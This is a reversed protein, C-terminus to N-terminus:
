VHKRQTQNARRIEARAGKWAKRKGTDFLRWMAATLCGDMIMKHLDRHQWWFKWAKWSTWGLNEEIGTGALKDMWSIWEGMSVAATMVAGREARKSMDREHNETWAEMEATPPLQSKGAWVQAIAMSAMDALCFAGTVFWVCGLFALSDPKKISFVNQYLRPLARGKSGRAELWQRSPNASPDYKPDILNFDNKHYGTCCIIADVSISTGDNLELEQPGTIRRIGTIPRVLGTRFNSILSDSIVPPATVKISPAPELRWTPNTRGFATFMISSAKKNYLWEEVM